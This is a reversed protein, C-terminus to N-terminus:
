STALPDPGPSAPFFRRLYFLYGLYPLVCLACIRLMMGNRILPSRALNEIQWAPVGVARYYDLIDVRTFTMFSSISFLLTVGCYILWVRRELRYFGRAAYLSFAAWGFWFVRAPWGTVLSGMLPIATSVRPSLLVFFAGFVLLICIAVVPLPCRDTWRIKPDRAECTLRVNEGRYFLVMVGPIVVYFVFITAAAFVKAFVLAAAPVDKGQQRLADGMSSLVPVLIAMAFLGACLGMWGLCLLLSRAWRRALVSGIGLWILGLSGVAFTALAPVTTALDSDHGLRRAGAIQAFFTLPIMLACFAGMIIEFVGFVILWAHRDKFDSAAPTAPPPLDM